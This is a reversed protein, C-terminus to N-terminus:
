RVLLMMMNSRALNASQAMMAFTSETMMQQRTFNMIEQAM